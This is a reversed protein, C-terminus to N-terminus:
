VSLAMSRLEGLWGTCARLVGFHHVPRSKYRGQPIPRFQLTPLKLRRIEQTTAFQPLSCV